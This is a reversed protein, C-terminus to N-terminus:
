NSIEPRPGYFVKTDYDFVVRGNQQHKDFISKLDLMMALFSPHNPEPTYSSSLVRGRLGDHDFIQQNPFIALKPKGPAFFEDITSETRDHRVDQYDTGYKLLLAEYDELFPTAALKRDNWILAIWGNPKLIRAVEVKARQPDFWHFAQGAIILDVSADSLTTNEATGNISTFEEFKSLLKEGAARMPANPEIGVISYGHELFVESLKGTGSGLDAIVSQHTLGCENELLQVVGVPYTPRYKIYNEVRTSFRDVSQSM